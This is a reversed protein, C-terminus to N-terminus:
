SRENRWSAAMNRHFEQEEELLKLEQSLKYFKLNNPCLYNEPKSPMYDILISSAASSELSKRHGALEVGIKSNAVDTMISSINHSLAFPQESKVISEDTFNFVANETYISTALRMSTAAQAQSLVVQNKDSSTAKWVTTNGAEATSCVLFASVIESKELGDRLKTPETSESLINSPITSPKCPM